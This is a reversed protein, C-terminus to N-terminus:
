CTVPSKRNKEAEWGGHHKGAVHSYWVQGGHREGYGLFLPEASSPNLHRHACQVEGGTLKRVMHSVPCIFSLGGSGLRTPEHRLEPMVERWLLTNCASGSSGTNQRTGVLQEMVGSQDTVLKGQFLSLCTCLIVLKSEKQDM